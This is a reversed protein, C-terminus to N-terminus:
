YKKWKFILFDFRLGLKGNATTVQTADEAGGPHPDVLRVRDKRYLFVPRENENVTNMPDGGKTDMKDQPTVYAYDYIKGTSKEVIKLFTDLTKNSTVIGIDKFYSDDPVEQLFVVDPTGLFRAFILATHSLEPLRDVSLSGLNYDSFTLSCKSNEKTILLSNPNPIQNNLVDM